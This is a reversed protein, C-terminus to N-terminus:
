DNDRLSEGPELFRPIEISFKHQDIGLKAPVVVSFIISKRKNRDMEEPPNQQDNCIIAARSWDYDKYLDLKM